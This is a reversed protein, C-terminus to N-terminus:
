VGAYAKSLDTLNQIYKMTHERNVPTMSKIPERIKDIISMIDNANPVDILDDSYNKEFFFSIDGSKIIEHYPVCISSYWVKVVISPNMRKVMEFSTLASKIERNTSFISLLDNMFDM